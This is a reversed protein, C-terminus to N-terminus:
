LKSLVQSTSTLRDMMNKRVIEIFRVSFSDAFGRADRGAPPGSGDNFESYRYCCRFAEGQVELDKLLELQRNLVHLRQKNGHVKTWFEALVETKASSISSDELLTQYRVILEKLNDLVGHIPEANAIVSEALRLLISFAARIEEDREGDNSAWTLFPITHHSAPSETSSKGTTAYTKM